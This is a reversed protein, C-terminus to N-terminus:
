DKGHGEWGVEQLVMQIYDDVGPDELHNKGEPKGTLGRSAGTSKCMRAVHEM